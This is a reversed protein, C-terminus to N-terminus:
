QARVRKRVVELNKGKVRAELVEGKSTVLRKAVSPELPILVRKSARRKPSTVFEIDMGDIEIWKGEPLAQLEALTRIRKHVMMEGEWAHAILTERGM